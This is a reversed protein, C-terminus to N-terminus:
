TFCEDFHKAIYLILDKAYHAVGTSNVSEAEEVTFGDMHEIQCATQVPNHESAALFPHVLYFSTGVKTQKATPLRQFM